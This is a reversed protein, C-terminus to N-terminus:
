LGALAEKLFTVDRLQIFKGQYDEIPVESELIKIADVLGLWVPEFGDAIEGEELHPVGKPGDLDALFCYSIQHLNWKNRYEEISGLERLNKVSCGIEEILERRLATEIDEGQEIGGGPLKHYHKKTVNLLAVNGDADFVIARSAGREQQPIGDPIDSDVDSDRITKLLKM